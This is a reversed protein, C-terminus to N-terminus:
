GQARHGGWVIDRALGGSRVGILDPRLYFRQQTLEVLVGARAFGLGLHVQLVLSLDKLLGM